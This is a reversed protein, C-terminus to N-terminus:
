STVTLDLVFAEPNTLSPHLRRIIDSRTDLAALESEARAGKLFLCRTGPVLQADLLELLRDLSALARATVINAGIPPLSEIRRNHVIARIGTERIVTQLFVAKKQDSEVLHLEADCLAAVVLGPFGAGSGVDLIRCTGAPVLAALQASDWIHRMWIDPLTSASVLNVRQQWKEVLEVYATLRDMTERSVDIQGALAEPLNM